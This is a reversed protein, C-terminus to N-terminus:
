PSYSLAMKLFHNLAYRKSNFVLKKKEFDNELESEVQIIKRRIKSQSVFNNADILSSKLKNLKERLNKEGKSEAWLWEDIKRMMNGNFWIHFIVFWISYFVGTVNVKILNDM